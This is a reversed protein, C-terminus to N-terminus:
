ENAVVVILAALCTLGIHWLTCCVLEFVPMNGYPPVGGNYCLSTFGLGILNLMSALITFVLKAKM